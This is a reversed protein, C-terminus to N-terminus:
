RRTALYVAHRRGGKGPRHREIEFGAWRLRKEFAADPDESWVAFIGGKRLADRTHALARRGYHPHADERPGRPGEYLDLVIADFARQGAVGRGAAAAPAPRQPVMAILEAVDSLVIQVRPDSAAGATLSALPGRCWEAVRSELEAVVVEAGEPLADLAARLTFAMGLGGILVRPAPERAFPACALEALVIESHNARSNMLVRGGVTILFDGDARRRLELEGRETTVRDLTEWARTM